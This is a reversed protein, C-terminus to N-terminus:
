VTDTPLKSCNNRFLKENGEESDVCNMSNKPNDPRSDITQRHEKPECVTHYIYESTESLLLVGDESCVFREV